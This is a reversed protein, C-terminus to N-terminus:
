ILWVRVRCRRLLGQHPKFTCPIVVLPASASPIQVTASVDKSNSFTAKAVLDDSAITLVRYGSGDTKAVYFGIHWPDQVIM